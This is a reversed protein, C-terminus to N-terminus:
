MSLGEITGNSPYSFVDCLLEPASTGPRAAKEVFTKEIDAVFGQLADPNACPLIAGVRKSEEGDWGVVDSLRM